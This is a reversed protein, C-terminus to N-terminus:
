DETADHKVELIVIRRWGGPIQAYADYDPNRVLFRRLQELPLNFVSQTYRNFYVQAGTVRNKAKYVM